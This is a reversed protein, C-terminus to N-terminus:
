PYTFGVNTEKEFSVSFDLRLQNYNDHHPPHFNGNSGRLVFDRVLYYPGVGFDLRFPLYAADVHRMRYRRGNLYKLSYTYLPSGDPKILQAETRELGDYNNASSVRYSMSRSTQPYGLNATPCNLIRASRLEDKLLSALSFPYRSEDFPDVSFDLSGDGRWLPEIVWPLRGKSENVYIQLAAGIQRLNSACVTQQAALRARRLAPLLIAILMAIIGMVVLLEILTFGRRHM